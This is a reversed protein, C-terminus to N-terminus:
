QSSGRTTPRGNRQPGARIVQHGIYVAFEARHSSIEERVEAFPKPVPRCESALFWSRAGHEGKAALWDGDVAVVEWPLEEPRRNVRDGIKLESM